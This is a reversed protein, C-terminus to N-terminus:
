AGMLVSLTFKLKWTFKTYQEIYIHLKQIGTETMNKIYFCAVENNVTITEPM